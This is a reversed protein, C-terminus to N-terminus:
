SWHSVRSVVFMDLVVACGIKAPQLTRMLRAGNVKGHMQFQKCIRQFAEAKAIEATTEDEDDEVLDSWGWLIISIRGLQNHKEVPLANIGHKWNINIRICVPFRTKYAM